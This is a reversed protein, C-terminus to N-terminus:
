PWLLCDFIKQQYITSLHSYKRKVVRWLVDPILLDNRARIEQKTFCQDKWYRPISYRYNGHFICFWTNPSRLMYERMESIQDDTLCGFKHSVFLKGNSSRDIGDQTMQEVKRDKTCYKLVYRLGAMSELPEVWAHGNQQWLDRIQWWYLPPAFLIAHYHMRHTSPFGREKARKGDAFEVVFLYPFSVKRYKWRKTVSDQYRFRPHKRLRDLFRRIPLYPHKLCEEYVEPKISFTCFYCQEPKLKLRKFVNDGRLFWHQQRRKLCEDCHGCPVCIFYDPQTAFNRHSVHMSKAVKIYHPNVIKIRKTCM